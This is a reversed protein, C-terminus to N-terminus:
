DCSKRYAPQFQDLQADRQTTYKGKPTKGYLDTSPCYYLGTRLDVWVQAAPNGKDEPPEPADALGLSILMRDFLPLEPAAPPKRTAAAAPPATAKVPHSSWIGWRIVCVVLIVAVGLYIDGRRANWFQLLSGKRNGGSLQELFQRASLASSWDPAPAPTQGTIDKKVEPDATEKVKEQTTEAPTPALSPESRKLSLDNSAPSSAAIAEASRDVSAVGVSDKQAVEPLVDPLREKEPPAPEKEPLGATTERKRTKQLWLPIAISPPNVPQADKKRPSGCEGCFQEDGVLKHGCKSCVATAPLTSSIQNAEELLAKRFLDAKDGDPRNPVAASQGNERGTAPENDGALAESVLGAMLQCTNVDHESFSRPDSYYLELAGIVESERLVPVIILSGIGRRRCEGADGQSQPNVNPCSFVEGTRIASACLAKDLPVESGLPLARMGAIARYRVAKGQVVGIAAGAAGCIEILQAAVLSLAAEANLHNREIRHQTEVIQGLASSYDGNEPEPSANFEAPVKEPVPVSHAPEDAPPSIRDIKPPSLPDLSRLAHRHEQLVFAAELLKALTKEDFVLKNKDESVIAGSVAARGWRM